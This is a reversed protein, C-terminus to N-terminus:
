FRQAIPMRRADAFVRDSIMFPMPAQRRKYESTKHLNIVQNILSIDFGTRTSILTPSLDLEIFNYLIEDLIRYDPLSDSDLQDAKLEATPPKSIISEPILEQAKNILRALQWVQTKYVDGLPAFAGCMDGYLTGYGVALESKNSTNVLFYDIANSIGMLIVGRIRAQINQEGLERNRPAAHAFIASLSAELAQVSPEISIIELKLGLNHAMAQADRLSNMSSYKSPLYFVRVREKGLALVALCACVASDIGGSLGLILGRAGCKEVYDKIGMVLVQKSLELPDLFDSLAALAPAQAQSDYFLLDEKCAQGRAIIEGSSNIVLSHGDFLLQDNGGVQGAVLGIVGYKKAINTFLRERLPPKASTYPSASINIYYDLPAHELFGLAVPDCEYGIPTFGPQTNWADECISVLFRKNQYVLVDCAPTPASTFYRKEDFINYNPLLRKYAVAKLENKYCFLAANYTLGSPAHGFPAGILMPIPTEQALWSAWQKIEALFDARLLLDKPPYGSLYLEPFVIFQAGMSSAKLAVKLAKEANIKLAGIVPNMQAIAIKM